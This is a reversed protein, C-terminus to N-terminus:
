CEEWRRSVRCLPYECLGILFPLHCYLLCCSFFAIKVWVSVSRLNLVSQFYLSISYQELIKKHIHM